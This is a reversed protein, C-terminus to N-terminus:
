KIKASEIVFDRAKQDLLNNKLTALSHNKSANLDDITKITENKWSDIESQVDDDSISISEKDIIAEMIKRLQIRKESPERVDNKLDDETKNTIQMYQKLDIGQQRISYEFQMLSVNIEQEIMANPIDMPNEEILVEFVADEKKQKNEQAFRQNLEAELKQKWEAVTACEKDIKQVL